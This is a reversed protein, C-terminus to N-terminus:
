IRMSHPRRDPLICNAFGPRERSKVMSATFRLQSRTVHSKPALSKVMRACESYSLGVSIIKRRPLTKSKHKSIFKGTRIDEYHVVFALAKLMADRVPQKSKKAKRRVVKKRKITPMNAPVIKRTRLIALREVLKYRSDSWVRLRRVGRSPALENYTALLEPIKMTSFAISKQPM